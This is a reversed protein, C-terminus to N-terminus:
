SGHIASVPVHLAKKVQVQRDLSGRLSSGICSPIVEELFAVQNSRKPAKDICLLM